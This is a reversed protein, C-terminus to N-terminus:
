ACGITNQPHLPQQYTLERSFGRRRVATRDHHAGTACLTTTAASPDTRWLRVRHHFLM